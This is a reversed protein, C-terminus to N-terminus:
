DKYELRGYGVNTKAGIGVDELINRFLALKNIQVKGITVPAVRFFFTFEVGPLIKIFQIPVPDKYLNKHPALYDDSM